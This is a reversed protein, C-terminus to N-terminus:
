VCRTERSRLPPLRFSVVLPLNPLSETSILGVSLDPYRPQISLAMKPLDYIDICPYTEGDIMRM